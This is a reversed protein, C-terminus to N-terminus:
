TEDAVRRYLVTGSELAVLLAVKDTTFFDVTHQTDPSPSINTTIHDVSAGIDRGWAINHITIIRGDSLTAETQKGCRGQLLHSVLDVAESEM